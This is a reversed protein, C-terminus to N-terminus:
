LKESVRWYVERRMKSYENKGCPLGYLDRLMTYTLDRNTVGNLLWTQFSRSTERVSSEIIDIKRTLEARKIGDRETPDRMENGRPMGDRVIAHQGDLDKLKDQMEGYTYCFDVVMRYTNYPLYWKSGPKPARNHSM